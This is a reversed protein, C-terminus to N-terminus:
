TTEITGPPLLEIPDGVSITGPQIVTAYIGLPLPVEGHAPDIIPSRLTRLASLVPHDRTGTRTDRATVVCRPVAGGFRLLASGVAADRGYWTDEEFADIDSLTLTMRFRRHGLGAVSMHAELAMISAISIVTVPAVDLAPAPTPAAALQVRQNLYDSLADAWPGLVVRGTSVQGTDPVIADVPEGLEVRGAIHTGDPLAISLTEDTPDWNADVLTLPANSAEVRRGDHDVLFFRRDGAAGYSELQISTPHHLRTGKLPTTALEYVTPPSANTTM